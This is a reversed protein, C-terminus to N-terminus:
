LSFRERLFHAVGDEHHHGIIDTAIAKVDSHANSPAYSEDAIAFMSLDNDSDGFCTIHSIDLQQRLLEIASGKNALRHHVDIWKLGKREIAPGSYAILNAEHNIHEQVADVKEASGLMSINTINAHIPMDLLPVLHTKPRAKFEALLRAEVENRIIGHYIFHRHQANVTSVFPTLAQQEAEALVQTVEGTTLTNDLSMNDAQPDWIIVGNSYIQPLHFDHGAIISQASYMTRGTAITYAINRQTLLCLTDKTFLSIESTDNLLTGDLDFVILEM